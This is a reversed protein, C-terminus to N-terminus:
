GDRLPRRRIASPQEQWSGLGRMVYRECLPFVIVVPVLAILSTAMLLNAWTGAM